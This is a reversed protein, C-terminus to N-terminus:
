YRVNMQYMKSNMLVENSTRNCFEECKTIYYQINGYRMQMIKNSIM